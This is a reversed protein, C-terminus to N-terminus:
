WGFKWGGLFGEVISPMGSLLPRGRGVPLDYTGLFSAKQPVDFIALRKELVPNLIDNPNLDQANLLTYQELNKTVMYNFQFNM